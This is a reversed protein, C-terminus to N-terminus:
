FTMLEKLDPLATPGKPMEIGRGLNNHLYIDKERHSIILLDKMLPIKRSGNFNALTIGWFVIVLHDMLNSVLKM